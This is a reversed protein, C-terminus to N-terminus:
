TRFETYGNQYTFSWSYQQGTVGIMLVTPDTPIAVLSASAFTEYEVFALVSGTVCLLM